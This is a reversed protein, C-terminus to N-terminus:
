AHDVIVIRTPRTLAGAVAGPDSLRERAVRDALEVPLCVAFKLEDRASDSVPPHLSRPDVAALRRIEQEVPGVQQHPPFKVMFNDSTTRMDLRRGLEHALAANAKGGAFTWWAVEGGASALVNSEDGALWAFDSRIEQIQAVARRSWSPSAAEGALLQRISRCLEHSLYQGQGRWRSRGADEAPEVFARRRKWDLHTVRWARGALLLVPPGEDRRALFTSQDVSGLERRGHWVVFLPPATFVSVLDLFNRRGYADQGERGLWLMGAEDWLVGRELMGAVIRDTVAADLERFAAVAGVWDLWESRGIGGEQLALALVQQALIHLPYPPPTAPEVFGSRWLELLGAARLLGEESTGLLLANRTTGPRRGTRGMRQLFSSVTPPADIQIVRDLDGVDMGLELASTAVIVCDRGGAFAREAQQREDLGLSSHSVFTAVGRTRLDAALREVRARSDCFVLRKEGRHLAAIIKAANELGGVYDLVVEPEPEPAAPPRIVRRPRDSGASLWGLLEEENGVTASLGIRRLDRGALRGIRQLLALLHWGRDDRAFAHVEDVVVARVEAFLRDHRVSGSVLMGELSEPTTLLCDPPEALLRRKTAVPVDGHWVAARRGVLGYYRELRGQQDNLLAKIPSVYLVALGDWPGAMAQSILPFFAAETKGGATPALILLHSGEDAADIALEQVPRLSRWGLANVVQHRLAPHLRDFAPM